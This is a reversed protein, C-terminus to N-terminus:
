LPDIGSMDEFYTSLDYKGYFNYTDDNGEKGIQKKMQHSTEADPSGFIKVPVPEIGQKVHISM